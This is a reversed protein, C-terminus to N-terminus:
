AVAKRKLQRTRHYERSAIRRCEMCGRGGTPIDYTNNEDYAHGRPCHTKNIWSNPSADANVKQSVVRLHEPNVCRRHPCDSGMNCNEAKNHCNHDITMNPPISSVFQEFSYRHAKVKKMRDQDWFQGYGSQLIAGTWLWCGSQNKEVYLWFREENSKGHNSLIIDPNGYKIFRQYHLSCYTKAFFLNDCGDISCFSKVKKPHGYKNACQKSCYKGRGNKIRYPTTNFENGCPCVKIMGFDKKAEISICYINSM